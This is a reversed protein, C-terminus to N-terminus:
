LADVYYWRRKEKTFRSNEHQEGSESGRRYKARFEVTGHTDLLGGRSTRVIDLLYWRITPDLELTAPRTNPHWTALLYRSAGLVYASYRSRMLREASPALTEGRHFPACCAGYTAGSLCPCRASDDVQPWVSHTASSHLM